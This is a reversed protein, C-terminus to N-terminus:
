GQHLLLPGRGGGAGAAGQVPGACSPTTASSRRKNVRVGFLYEVRLTTGVGVVANVASQLRDLGPDSVVLWDRIDIVANM